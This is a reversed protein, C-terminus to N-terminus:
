TQTCSKWPCNMYSSREHNATSGADAAFGAILVAGGGLHAVLGEGTPIWTGREHGNLPCGHMRAPPGRVRSCGDIHGVAARSSEGERKGQAKCRRGGGVTGYRVRSLKLRGATPGGEGKAIYSRVQDRGQAAAESRSSARLVASRLTSVRFFLRVTKVKQNCRSSQSMSRARLERSILQKKLRFNM